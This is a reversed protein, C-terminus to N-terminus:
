GVVVGLMGEIFTFLNQGKGGRLFILKYNVFTLIWDLVPRASRKNLYESM